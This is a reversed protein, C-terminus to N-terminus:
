RFDLIVSEYNNQRPGMNVGTPGLQMGSTQCGRPNNQSTFDNNFAYTYYNACMGHDQFGYTANAGPQSIGCYGM